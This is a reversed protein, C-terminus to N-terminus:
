RVSVLHSGGLPRLVVAHQTGDASTGEAIIIGASNIGKARLLLVGRSDSVLDNLDLMSGGAYIFAREQFADNM